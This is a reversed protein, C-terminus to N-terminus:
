EDESLLVDCPLNPTERGLKTLLHIRWAVVKDIALCKKISEADGLQRDEVRCGSKLVRHFVEIGWRLSYWRVRECAEDFSAVPVTTLLM